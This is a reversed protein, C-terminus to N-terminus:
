TVVVLAQENTLALLYTRALASESLEAGEQGRLHKWIVEFPFLQHVM